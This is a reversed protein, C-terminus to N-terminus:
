KLRRINKFYIIYAKQSTIINVKQAIDTRKNFAQEHSSTIDTGKGGALELLEPTTPREFKSKKIQKKRREEEAAELSKPIRDRQRMYTRRLAGTKM